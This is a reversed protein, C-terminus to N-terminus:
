FRRVVCLEQRLPEAEATVELAEEGNLVHGIKQKVEDLRVSKIVYGDAQSLRPDDMYSDYASFIIISLLPHRRKLDEFLQLGEPGDLYLDLVVLDPRFLLISERAAEANSVAAVSYGELTLEAALLQRVCKQDDVILVKKVM